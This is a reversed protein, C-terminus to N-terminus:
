FVFSKGFKKRYFDKYNDEKFNQLNQKIEKVVIKKKQVCNNFNINNIGTISYAIYKNDNKKFSLIYHEYKDDNSELSVDYFGDDFYATEKISSIITEKDFYQLASDGVSMGEIQFDRIDDAKTLNQFSFTLILILLLRKMIFVKEGHGIHTM